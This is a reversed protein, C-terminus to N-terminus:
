NLWNTLWSWQRDYISIAPPEPPLLDQLTARLQESWAEQAAKRAQPPPPSLPPGIHVRLTKGRWLPKSGALAVPLVRRGSKQAIFALGRQLEGIQRPPEDLHHWGEPFLGLRDGRTLVDLAAAVVERNLASSTSVPYVGGVLAMLARRWWSNFVNETGLVIMRPLAPMALLLLFGDVWNRHPGGAVILPEGAPVHERGSVEIRFHFIREAIFRVAATAFQGQLATIASPLRAGPMPTPPERM